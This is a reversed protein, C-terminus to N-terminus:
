VRVRCFFCVRVRVCVCVCVCVCVRGGVANRHHITRANMASTAGCCRVLGLGLASSVHLLCVCYSIM